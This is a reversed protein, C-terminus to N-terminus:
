LPPLAAPLSTSGQIQGASSGQESKDGKLRDKSQAWGKRKSCRPRSPTKHGILGLSEGSTGRPNPPPCPAALQEMVAAPFSPFLLPKILGALSFTQAPHSLGHFFSQGTELHKKRAKVPLFLRVRSTNAEESVGPSTDAGLSAHALCSQGAAGDRGASSGAKYALGLSPEVFLDQARRGGGGSHPCCKSSGWWTAKGGRSCAGPRAAPMQLGPEQM